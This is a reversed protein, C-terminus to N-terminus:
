PKYESEKRQKWEYYRKYICVRMQDYNKYVPKIKFTKTSDDVNEFMLVLMPMLQTSKVYGIPFPIIWQTVEIPEVEIGDLLSWEYYVKGFSIGDASVTVVHMKKLNLGCLFIILGILLIPSLILSAGAPEARVSASFVFPLLFGALFLVPIYLLFYMVISNSITM